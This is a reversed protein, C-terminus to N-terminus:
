KDPKDELIPAYKAVVREIEKLAEHNKSNFAGGVFMRFYNPLEKASSLKALIEEYEEKKSAITSTAIREKYEEQLEIIRPINLLEEEKKIEAQKQIEQKSKQAQGMELLRKAEAFDNQEVELLINPDIPKVPDKGNESKIFIPGNGSPKPAVQVQLAKKKFFAQFQGGAITVKEIPRKEENELELYKKIYEPLELLSSPPFAGELTTKSITGAEIEPSGIKIPESELYSTLRARLIGRATLGLKKLSLNLEFVIEGYDPKTKVRGEIKINPNKAIIFQAVQDSLQDPLFKKEEIKQGEKKPVSKFNIIDGPPKDSPM